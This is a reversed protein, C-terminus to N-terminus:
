LGRSELMLLMISEAMAADENMLWLGAGSYFHEKIASHKMELEKILKLPHEIGGRVMAWYASMRNAANIMILM